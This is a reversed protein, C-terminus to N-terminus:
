HSEPSFYNSLPNTPQTQPHHNFTPTTQHPNRSECSHRLPNTPSTTHPPNARSKHIRPKPPIVSPTPQTPLEKGEFYPLAIWGLEIVRGVFAQCAGSLQWISFLGLVYNRWSDMFWGKDWDQGGGGFFQCFQHICTLVPSFSTLRCGLVPSVWTLFQCSVPSRFGAQWLGM